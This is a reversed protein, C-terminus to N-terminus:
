VRETIIALDPIGQYDDPNHTVLSLKYRLATAAIWADQSSIPHGVGSRQVRVTAWLRCTEIDIPLITYNQMTEELRRIRSQGWNRAAAWQFLEAVTMMSIALESGLLSREYLAVRTDGKFLYSVINTDLLLTNM